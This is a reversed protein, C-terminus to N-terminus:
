QAPPPSANGATQADIDAAQQKGQDLVTQETSRARDMPAEIRDLLRTDPKERKKPDNWSEPDPTASAQANAQPEPRRETDPKPKSCASLGLACLVM